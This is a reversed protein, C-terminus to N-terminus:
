LDDYGEALSQVGPAYNTYGYCTWGLYRMSAYIEWKVYTKEDECPNNIRVEGDNNAGLDQLYIAMAMVGDVLSWPDAPNNGTNKAIRDRYDYWTDPMFQAAGMAGGSGPYHPSACSM